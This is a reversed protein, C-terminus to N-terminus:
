ARIQRAVLGRLICHQTLRGSAAAKLIRDVVDGPKGVRLVRYGRRVQERSMGIELSQFPDGPLCKRRRALGTFRRAVPIKLARRAAILDLEPAFIPKRCLGPLQQIGLLLHQRLSVDGAIVRGKFSPRMLDTRTRLLIDRCKALDDRLSPIGIRCAEVQRVELAQNAARDQCTGDIGRNRCLVPVRSGDQAREGGVGKRQHTAPHLGVAQM